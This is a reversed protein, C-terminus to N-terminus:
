KKVLFHIIYIYIYIYIYWLRPHNSTVSRQEPYINPSLFFTGSWLLRMGFTRTSYRRTHVLYGRKQRLTCKGNTFTRNCMNEIRQGNVWSWINVSHSVSFRASLESSMRSDVNINSRLYLLFLLITVFCIFMPILLQWMECHMTRDISLTWWIFTGNCICPATPENTKHRTKPGNVQTWNEGLRYWFITEPCYHKHPPLLTPNVYTGETTSM